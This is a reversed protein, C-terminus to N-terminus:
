LRSRMIEQNKKFIKEQNRKKLILNNREIRQLIRDVSNEYQLGSRLTNQYIKYETIDAMHHYILEKHHKPDIHTLDLSMIGNYGPIIYPTKM